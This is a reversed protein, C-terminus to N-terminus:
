NDEPLPDYLEVKPHGKDPACVRVCITQEVAQKYSLPFSM